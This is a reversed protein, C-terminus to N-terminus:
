APTKLKSPRKEKQVRVLEVRQCLARTNPNTFPKMKNVKWKVRNITLVEGDELPDILVKGLGTGNTVRDAFSVVARKSKALLHGLMELAQTRPKKTKLTIRPTHSYPDWNDFESWRWDFSYATINQNYYAITAEGCFGPVQNDHSVLSYKYRKSGTPIKFLKQPM